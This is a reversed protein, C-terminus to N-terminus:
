RFRFLNYNSFLVPFNYSVPDNNGLIKFHPKKVATISQCTNNHLSGSKLIKIKNIDGTDMNETELLVDERIYAVSSISICIQYEQSSGSEITEDTAPFPAATPEPTEVGITQLVSTPFTSPEPSTTSLRVLSM